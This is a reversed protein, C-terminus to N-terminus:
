FSQRLGVSIMRVNGSEGVIKGRTLDVDATLALGKSIEYGLGFGLYANTSSDSESGSVGDLSANAKVRVSAVGVRAVGSWQPAFDGIFAVGVGIANAKLNLSLGGDAAKAKGFNFYTVEAAMNPMFKYGGYLKFGTDSKDCTPAGECDLNIRAQGIAGGVYGEAFATSTFLTAAAAAVAALITKKM